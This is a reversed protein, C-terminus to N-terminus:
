AATRLGDRRFNRITNPKTKETTRFTWGLVTTLYGYMQGVNIMRESWAYFDPFLQQLTRIVSEARIVNLGTRIAMRRAQQGYGIALFCTKALEREAPHTQKTAGPPAWGAAIALEAYVDSTQIADLLRKDGSLVAAIHVEQSRWDLYGLSRGEAPKVLGRMWQARTLLFDPSSPNHRGTLQRYPHLWPRCRCDTGIILPKGRLQSLSKRLQRLDELERYRRCMDKFTDDELDLQGTVTRPWEIRHDFLYAEFLGLKFSGGRYVGYWGGDLESILDRCIGDRHAYIPDHLEVDVPYGNRQM